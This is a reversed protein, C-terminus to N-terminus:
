KEIITCKNLSVDILNKGFCIGKIEVTKGISISKAKGLQDSGTTCSVGESASSDRLVINYSASDKTIEAVLGKVQIIKENYIKNAADENKDFYAVLSDAPMTYDPKGTVGSTDSKRFVYLYVLGGIVIGAALIILILKKM